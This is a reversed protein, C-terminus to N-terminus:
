QTSGLSEMAPVGLMLINGSEPYKEFNYFLSFISHNENNAHM